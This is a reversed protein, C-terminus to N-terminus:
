FTEWGDSAHSASDATAFSRAQGPAPTPTTSEAPARAAAVARRSRERAGAIVVQGPEALRDEIRVAGADETAVRIGADRSGAEDSLRFVGVVDGLKAAQQKLSEAAAASEEVLAANQQTMQDLQGVATNIQEIGTSQEASAATIEGIIDTVRQVSVVIERMTTGADVVLTSGSQVREVSAEILSKIERAAGASRQALSRVENAVVAFGRGEEGARAAEVAANLALINTQFAIGDITGIIDAIRRSSDEIDQMTSVVREVVAGGRGAAESATSALQSATRASDATQRVTDTLQGLSSAAQQLNSATEETRQSLDINGVAIESSATRISEASRHVQAVTDRLSAIMTRLGHLLSGAPASKLEFGLNGRSAEAMATLAEVPDGGIQRLVSRAVFVAVLAVLALLSLAVVGDRVRADRVLADLDDVYVGSGIVWDWGPLAIAYQLKPVPEAQGPRPFHAESFASGQPNAAIADLLRKLTDAGSTDLLEGIMNRGTWEPRMPHMVTDGDRTWIYFYESRGDAGGYRSGRIAEIAAARAQQAPMEGASARERYSAAINYASQVAIVLEARRADVITREHRVTSLTALIAFGAVVSGILVFIKRQFGLHELM